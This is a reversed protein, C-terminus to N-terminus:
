KKTNEYNEYNEKETKRLFTTTFGVYQGKKNFRAIINNEKM